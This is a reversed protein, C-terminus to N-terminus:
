ARDGQDDRFFTLLISTVDDVEEVGRSSFREMEVHGDDFFHVEWRERPVNVCVTLADARDVRVVSFVHRSNLEARLLAANTLASV